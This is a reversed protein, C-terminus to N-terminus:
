CKRKYGNSPNRQMPVMVSPFWCIGDQPLREKSGLWVPPLLHYNLRYCGLKQMAFQYEVCITRLSKDARKLVVDNPDIAFRGEFSPIANCDGYYQADTFLKIAEADRTLLKVAMSM